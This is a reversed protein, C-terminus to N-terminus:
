KSEELIRRMRIEHTVAAIEEEAKIDRKLYAEALARVQDALDGQAEAIGVGLNLDRFKSRGM